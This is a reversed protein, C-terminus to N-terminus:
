AAGQALKKLEKYTAQLTAIKDILGLRKADHSLYVRGSGFRESVQAAPIGTKDSIVKDFVEGFYDVVKQTENIAEDNLPEVVSYACKNIVSRVVKVELGDNVLKQAASQLTTMVGISGVFTSEDAYIKTAASSLYLAASAMTGPTFAYVPKVSALLKLTKYAQHLGKVSGGTSDVYLLVGKIDKSNYAKQAAAEIDPNGVLNYMTAYEGWHAISRGIIDGSINIVAIDDNTTTYFPNKRDTEGDVGCDSAKFIAASVKELTSQERTLVEAVNSSGFWLNEYM